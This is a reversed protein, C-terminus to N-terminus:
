KSNTIKENLVLSYCFPYVKGNESLNRSPCYSIENLDITYKSPWSRLKVDCFLVESKNKIKNFLYKFLALFGRQKMLKYGFYFKKLKSHMMKWLDEDNVEALIFEHKNSYKHYFLRVDLSCPISLHNKKKSYDKLINKRKIGTLECLISLLESIAYPQVGTYKGIQVGSRIRWQIIYQSNKLYFDFIDKLEEKNVGRVLLTSLVIQVNNKKLNEFTNLKKQLLLKGDIELFKDDSFSNFSLHVNNLGSDVLKKVYNENELRIGNTILSHVKGLQTIYSIIEPLDDRLTPEGGSIRIIPAKSKKILKQIDKLTLDKSKSYHLYCIKCNLNCKHTFPIMLCTAKQKFRKPNKNMLTKYLTADKEILIKFRGHEKCDKYMYVLNKERLVRANIEKFCKPCLSKTKKLLKM